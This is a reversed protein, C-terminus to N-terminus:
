GTRYHEDQWRGYEVDFMAAELIGMHMYPRRAFRLVAPFVPSFGPSVTQMAENSMLHLPCPALSFAQKAMLPEAGGKRSSM